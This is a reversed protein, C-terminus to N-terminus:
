GAPTAPAAPGGAADGAPRGSVPHRRDYDAVVDEWHEHAPETVISMLADRMVDGAASAAHLVSETVPAHHHESM